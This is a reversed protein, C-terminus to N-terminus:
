RATAEAVLIALIESEAEVRRPHRPNIGQACRARHLPIAVAIRQSPRHTGTIALISRKLLRISISSMM